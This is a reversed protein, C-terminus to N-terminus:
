EAPEVAPYVDATGTAIDRMCANKTWRCGREALQGTPAALAGLGSVSFGRLCDIVALFDLALHMSSLLLIATIAKPVM